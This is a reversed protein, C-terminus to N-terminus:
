EEVAQVTVDVVGTSLDAIAAFDARNLDVVRGPIFPGTSVITTDVSQGNDTNTVRIRSGMPFDNCAAGTGDYWSAKGEVIGGTTQAPKIFVAIMGSKKNLQGTVQLRDSNNASRIKRWQQKKPNWYKLRIDKTVADAAYSMTVWVPKTLRMKKNRGKNVTYTYVDSVLQATHTPISKTKKHIYVRTKRVGQISKPQIGIAVTGILNQVTYGSQLASKRLMVQIDAGNPVSDATSDAWAPQVSIVALMLLALVGTMRAWYTVHPVVM